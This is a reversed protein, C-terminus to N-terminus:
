KSYMGIGGIDNVYYGSGAKPSIYGEVTLQDYAQKATTVSIKLESSISRLSPMREGDCISGSTIEDRIYSYLQIYYPDKSHKSLEPTLSKM